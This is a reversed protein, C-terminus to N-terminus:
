QKDCGSCWISSWIGSENASGTVPTGGFTSTPLGMSSFVDHHYATIQSHHLLGITGATDISVANAHANMLKINIDYENYEIGNIMATGALGFNATVGLFGENMVVQLGTDAYSDGNAARLMYYGAVDDNERLMREQETEKLGGHSDDNFMRSFAGTIAGNKFKGGGIASATGGAIAAAFTRQLNLGTNGADIKGIKGGLSSTFAGALFGAGFKGGTMRQRLGGVLGNGVARGFDGLGSSGVGYFLGASIMGTFAASLDGGSSVLGGVFGSIAAGAFTAGGTANVLGMAGPLYVSIAIAAIARGYKKVFRKVSKFLKKHFFGSPDILTMPNNMVYSYRNLNQLNKPAQINPDASLFRGLAPDYVRGNMHILGVDDLHEHGTYGRNFQAAVDSILSGSVQRREGFAFFDLQAKVSGDSNAIAVASGQYDRLLYETSSTSNSKRTHVAITQGAARIFHKYEVSSDAKDTREYLGGLYYTNSVLPNGSQPDSTTLTKLYRARDPAYAFNISTGGKTINTPKNNVNWNISRGAGDTMNGNADYLYTFGNATKVAHPRTEDYSYNGSIRPKQKINGLGDYVYNQQGNADTTNKLRNLEDYGFSESLSVNSGATTRRSTSRTVLNGISDYSYDGRYLTDGFSNNYENWETRGADNYGNWYSIGSSSATAGLTGSIVMGRADMIDAQWYNLQGDESTIKELYAYSNYVHNVKFRNGSSEPYTISAVRSYTDYATNQKFPNGNINTTTEALLGLENYAYNKVFGKNNFESILKGKCKAETVGDALNCSPTNSNEYAWNSVTNLVGAANYEDRQTLRGLLDYQMETTQLRADTQSILEGAANYAYTWSGMDPDNMSTKRGLIDYGVHTILDASLGTHEIAPVITRVRNGFANYEYRITQGQTDQVSLLYGLSNKTEIRQQTHDASTGAANVVYVKTTTTLGNYVLESVGSDASTQKVLRGFFDYENITPNKNAANSYLASEATLQGRENYNIDKYITEGAFGITTRRVERGLSDYYATVPSAYNVSGKIQQTIVYYAATQAVDNPGLAPITCVSQCWNATISTQTGDARYEYEKQGFEDYQWSTTIGNPGTQDLLNGFSLDYSRNETHGYANTVYEVFLGQSDYISETVRPAFWKPHTTALSDSAQITVREKNGFNDYSYVTRKTLEPNYPEVIEETLLGTTSHYKFESNRRDFAGNAISTLTTYRLRGLQLNSEDYINRTEKVYVGSADTNTVKMWTTNGEIDYGSETTMGSMFDGLDVDNKQEYSKAVHPAFASSTSTGAREHFELNKLINFVVISNPSQSNSVFCSLGSELEAQTLADGCSYTDVNLLEELSLGEARELLMGTYPFDQRYITQTMIGTRVDADTVARFGLAGRTIHTKFGRYFYNSTSFGGVGNDVSYASVVNMRPNIDRVKKDWTLNVAAESVPRSHQAYVGDTVPYPDAAYVDASNTNKYDIIHNISNPIEIKTLLQPKGNNLAIGNLLSFGEQRFFVQDIFGDSNIDVFQSGYNKGAADVIPYAPTYYGYGDKEWGSGTNILAGKITGYTSSLRNQLIDVLGDNNVDVLRVGTDKDKSDVDDVMWLSTGQLTNAYNNNTNWGTGTNIAVSETITIIGGTYKRRSYIQDVLGDGNVDVLKSGVDKGDVSVFPYKPKYSEDSYWGNGNNIFAAKPNLSEERSKVIDILGDGNVDVLRVGQDRGNLDTFFPVNAISTAFDNVTSWGTGLNLAVGTKIGSSTYSNYIQDVLGDGNVDAFRGGADNGDVDVVPFQPTYSATRDWTKGTNIWALSFATGNVDRARIIDVLGDGNLDLLRLGLDQGTSTVFGYDMVGVATFLNNSDWGTGTNLAVGGSRNYPGSLQDILGDGNVDVFRSGMEKGTELNMIPYIPAYAASEEESKWGGQGDSLRAKSFVPGTYSSVHSLIKDLHGDGNVDIFKVSSNSDIVSSALWWYAADNASFEDFGGYTPSKQNTLNIAPKCKSVACEQIKNLMPFNNIGSYEYGLWYQKVLSGNAYTEIRDLKKNKALNAGALYGSTADARDSYTFKVSNNNFGGGNPFAYDIKDPRTGGSADNIYNIKYHNGVTDEVRGLQWSLVTTSDTAEIRSDYGSEVSGYTMILGSKTIAEFYAPGSGQSGYSIYTTYSDMETRYVTGSSGYVDSVGSVNILRQGDVCFRDNTSLDVGRYIGDTNINKGCRSIASLGNLSWGTGLLGNGSQSSYSLSLEPAMGATAPPIQIPISYTAAGSENVSFEGQTYGFTESKGTYFGDDPAGGYTPIPPTTDTENTSIIKGNADYYVDVSVYTSVQFTRFSVANSPMAAGCTNYYPGIPACNVVQGADYTFDIGYEQYSYWIIPFGDPTMVIKLKAETYTIVAAQLQMSFFLMGTLVISKILKSKLNKMKM